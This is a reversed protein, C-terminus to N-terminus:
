AAAGIPSSTCIRWFVVKPMARRSRSYSSRNDLLAYVDAAAAADEPRDGDTTAAQDPRIGHHDCVNRRARRGDSHGRLHDLTVCASVKCSCARCRRSQGSRLPAVKHSSMSWEPVRRSRGKRRSPTSRCCRRAPACPRSPLRPRRPEIHRDRKGGPPALFSPNSRSRREEIRLDLKPDSTERDAIALDYLAPEILRSSAAGRGPRCPRRQWPRRRSCNGGSRRDVVAQGSMSHFVGTPSALAHPPSAMMLTLPVNWRHAAEIRRDDGALFRLKADPQPLRAPPDQPNIGLHRM